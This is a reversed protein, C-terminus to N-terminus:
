RNALLETNFTQQTSQGQGYVNECELQLAGYLQMMLGVKANSETIAYAIRSALYAAFAQVFGEDMYAEVGTVVQLYRIWLIPQNTLIVQVAGQYETTWALSDQYAGQPLGTNLSTGLEVILLTNVPYAYSYSYIGSLPATLLAGPAVRSMIFPPKILRLVADRASDYFVNCAKAEATNESISQITNQGLLMLAQNCITVQDTM